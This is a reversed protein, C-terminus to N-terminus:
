LNLERKLEAIQVDLAALMRADNAMRSSLAERKNLLADYRARPSQAVPKKMSNAALDAGPVRNFVIDMITNLLWTLLGIPPPTKQCTEM